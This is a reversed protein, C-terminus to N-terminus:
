SEPSRPSSPSPSEPELAGIRRLDAVIRGVAEIAGGEPPAGYADVLRDALAAVEIGDRAADFAFLALDSLELVQREYLLLTRQDVEVRDVPPRSRIM